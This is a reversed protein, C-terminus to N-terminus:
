VGHIAPADGMVELAHDVDLGGTIALSAFCPTRFRAGEEDVFAVLALPRRREAGAELLAAAAELGAVVGLAGDYAGGDPQTDLHSGACVWPATEADPTVAWLSGAGDRRVDLGISDAVSAFWDQAEAELAPQAAHDLPDVGGM